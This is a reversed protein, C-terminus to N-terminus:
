AAVEQFLLIPCPSYDCFLLSFICTSTSTVFSHKRRVSALGLDHVKLSGPPLSQLMATPSQKAGAVVKVAATLVAKSSSGSSSSVSDAMDYGASTIGAGPNTLYLVVAAWGLLVISRNGKGRLLGLGAALGSVAWLQERPAELTRWWVKFGSMFSAPNFAEMPPFPRVLAIALVGWTLLYTFGMDNADGRLTGMGLTFLLAQLSVTIFQEATSLSVWWLWSRKLAQSMKPPLMSQLGEWATSTCAQTLSGLNLEAM